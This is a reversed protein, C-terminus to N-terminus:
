GERVVQNPLENVDDDNVPVKAALVSELQEIVDVVGDAAKGERLRKVLYDVQEQWGGTGVREHIGRDGLLVVQRELESIFLLMGTRDRTDYVQREAFIRFAVARAAHEAEHRPILRRHLAPVGLVFWALMGVPLQLALAWVEAGWPVLPFYAMATAVSWAAAAIARYRSYKASKPVIAVVFETASRREVQAIAQEIRRCDADSVLAM